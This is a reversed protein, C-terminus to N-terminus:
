AGHIVPQSISLPLARATPVFVHNCSKKRNRPSPPAERSASLKWTFGKRLDSQHASLGYWERGRRWQFLWLLGLGSVATSGVLLFSKHSVTVGSRMLSWKPGNTVGRYSLLLMLVPSPDFSSLLFWLLMLEVLLYLFFCWCYLHTSFHGQFGTDWSFAWAYLSILKFCISFNILYSLLGKDRLSYLLSPDAEFLFPLCGGYCALTHLLSRSPFLM